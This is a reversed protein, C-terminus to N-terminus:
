ALQEKAFWPYLTDYISHKTQIYWGGITSALIGLLFPLHPLDNSKRIAVYISQDLIAQEKIFTCVLRPAITKRIALKPNFFFEPSRPEALWKGYSVYNGDWTYFYRALHKGKIEPFFSTDLKMKSHYSQEEKDRKTQPGKSFKSEGYGDTRYAHIGRNLECFSVLPASNSELREIIHSHAESQHIDIFGRMTCGEIKLVNLDTLETPSRFKRVLFTGKPQAKQLRTPRTPNAAFRWVRCEGM